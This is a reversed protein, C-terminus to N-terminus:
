RPGPYAMPPCAPLRPRQRKGGPQLGGPQTHWREPRSRSGQWRLRHPMGVVPHPQGSLHSGPKSPNWASPQHPRSKGTDRPDKEPPGNPWRTQDQQPCTLAQVRTKYPKSRVVLALGDPPPPIPFLCSAATVLGTVTEECSFDAWRSSRGRLGRGERLPSSGSPLFRKRGQRGTRTGKQRQSLHRVSRLSLAGPAPVGSCPLLGCLQASVLGPLAAAAARGGPGGAGGAM